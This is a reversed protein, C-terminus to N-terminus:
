PLCCSPSREEWREALDPVPSGDADMRILSAHTLQLIQSGYADTALRPDISSPAGPLAIVLTGDEVPLRPTCGSLAFAALSLVFLFASFRDKVNGM